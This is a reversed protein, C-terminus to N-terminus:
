CTKGILSSNQGFSSVSKTLLLLCCRHGPTLSSVSMHRCGWESRLFWGAVSRVQFRLQLLHLLLPQRPSIRPELRRRRLLSLLLLLLAARRAWSSNGAYRSCCRRRRGEPCRSPRWFIPRPRIPPPQYLQLPPNPWHISSFPGARHDEELSSGSYTVCARRHRGSSMSCDLVRQVMLM